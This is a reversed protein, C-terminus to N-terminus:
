HIRNRNTAAHEHEMRRDAKDLDEKIEKLINLIHIELEEKTM